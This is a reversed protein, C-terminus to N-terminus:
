HMLEPARGPGFYAGILAGLVAAWGILFLKGRNEQYHRYEPRSALARAIQRRRRFGLDKIARTALKGRRHGAAVRAASVARQNNFNGRLSEWPGCHEVHDIWIDNSYSLREPQRNLNPIIETEWSGPAGITKPLVATRLVASTALMSPPMSGVPPVCEAFGMLFNPWGWGRTSSQNRGLVKIAALNPSEGFLRRAERVFRPSPPGHEELVVTIDRDSMSGIEARLRFSSAGPRHVHEVQVGAAFGSVDLWGKSAGGDLVTVRDSPLLQERLAALL